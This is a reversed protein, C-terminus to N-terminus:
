SVSSHARSFEVIRRSLAGPDEFHPCHAFGEPREIVTHKPLHRAYYDLTSPPLIRESQGWLLLIPARLTGLQEPAPLDDNTASELLDRVAPRQMIAPLERAILPAIRPARHYLREVFARAEARSRLHFTTRLARWEDESLRAGAPSVLVLGRVRDPRRLAYAIAVAGGLSNGVLTAPQDLMDDLLQTMSELLSSVTLKASAEDSFGHGPFDPAIVRRADRRLRGVVPGFPTAASGIGHLLVIPPLAGSGLVDYVHLTAQPTRVSRSTIGRRALARRGLRELLPIVIPRV